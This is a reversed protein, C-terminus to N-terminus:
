AALLALIETVGDPLMVVPLRNITSTPTQFEDAAVVLLTVSVAPSENTSTDWKVAGSLVSILMQVAGTVLPPPVRGMMEAVAVEAASMPMM